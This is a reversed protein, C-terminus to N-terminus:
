SSSSVLGVMPITTFINSPKTSTVTGGVGLNSCANTEPSEKQPTLASEPVRQLKDPPLAPESDNVSPTEEGNERMFKRDKREKM